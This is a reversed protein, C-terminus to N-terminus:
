GVISLENSLFSHSHDNAEYPQTSCLLQILTTLYELIVVRRFYICSSHVLTFIVKWPGKMVIGALLINKNSSLCHDKYM